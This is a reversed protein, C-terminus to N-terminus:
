QAENQQQKTKKKWQAKALGLPFFHGTTQSSSPHVFFFFGMIPEKIFFHLTTILNLLWQTIFYLTSTILPFIRHM